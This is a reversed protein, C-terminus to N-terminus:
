KLTVKQALRIKDNTTTTKKLCFVAYSIRMLSQLESTHEESRRANARGSPMGEPSPCPLRGVALSDITFPLAPQDSDGMGPIDGAIVMHRASLPEISRIWLGSSLRPPFSHTLLHLDRPDGYGLFFDLCSIM